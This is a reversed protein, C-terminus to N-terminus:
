SASSAMALMANLTFVSFLSIKENVKPICFIQILTKSIKRIKEGPQWSSNSPEFASNQM